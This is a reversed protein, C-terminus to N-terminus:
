ELGEGVLRHDRDLVRPQEGLQLRTVALQRRRQVRLGGGAVDQADDAARLRIDLRHEVGDQGAGDAQQPRIRAHQSPDRAILDLERSARAGVDSGVGEAREEWLREVGLPGV